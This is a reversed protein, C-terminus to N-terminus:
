KKAKVKVFKAGNDIRDKCLNCVLFVRDTLSEAMTVLYFSNILTRGCVYCYFYKKM